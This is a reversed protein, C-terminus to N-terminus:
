SSSEQFFTEVRCPRMQISDKGFRALDVAKSLRCPHNKNANADHNGHAIANAKKM